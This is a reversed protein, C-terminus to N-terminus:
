TVGVVSFHSGFDAFPSALDYLNLSVCNKFIARKEKLAVLYM